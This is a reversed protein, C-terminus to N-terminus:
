KTIVIPYAGLMKQQSYLRVVYYGSPLSHLDLTRLLEGSAGVSVEQNLAVRGNVAVVVVKYEGEPVISAEVQATQITPNPYIRVTYDRIEPPRISPPKVTDAQMALSITPLLFSRRGM